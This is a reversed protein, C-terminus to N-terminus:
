SIIQNLYLLAELMLSVLLLWFNAALCAVVQLAVRLLQVVPKWPLRDWKSYEDEDLGNHQM